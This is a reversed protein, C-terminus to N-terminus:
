ARDILRYALWAGIIVVVGLARTLRSSAHKWQMWVFSGLLAAAFTVLQTENMGLALM